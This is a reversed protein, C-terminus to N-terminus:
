IFSGLRFLNGLQRFNEWDPTSTIIVIKPSKQYNEAFFNDNKMFVLTIILNKRLNAKNLTLFALKKAMKKAFINLFCLMRGQDGQKDDDGKDIEIETGGNKDIADL